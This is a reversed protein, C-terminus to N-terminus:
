RDPGTLSTQATCSLWCLEHPRQWVQARNRRGGAALLDDGVRGRAGASPAGVSHRIRCSCSGACCRAATSGTAAPGALIASSRRCCPEIRRGCGTRSSGRRSSARGWRRLDGGADVDSAMRLNDEDPVGLLAACGGPGRAPSSDVAASWRRAVSPPRGLRNSEGAEPRRGRVRVFCCGVSAACRRAPM